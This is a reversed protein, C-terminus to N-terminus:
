PLRMLLGLASLLVHGNWLLGYCAVLLAFMFFLAVFGMLIAYLQPGGGDLSYAISNLIRQLAGLHDM